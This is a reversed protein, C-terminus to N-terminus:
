CSHLGVESAASAVGLAMRVGVFTLLKGRADGAVVAIPKAVLWHLGLYLYSRLAFEPSHEWTQLGHGHVLYHLPEWFNFTEDCDHVLNIVASAARAIVLVSFARAFTMTSAKKKL